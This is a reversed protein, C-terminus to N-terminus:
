PSDFIKLAGMCLAADRPCRQKRTKISLVLLLLLPPLVLLRPRQTTTIIANVALAEFGNCV